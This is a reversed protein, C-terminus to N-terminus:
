VNEERSCRPLKKRKKTKLTSSGRGIAVKPM